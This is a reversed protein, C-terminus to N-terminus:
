VSAAIRQLQAQFETTGLLSMLTHATQVANSAATRDELATYATARIIERNTYQAPTLLKDSTRELDALAERPRGIRNNVMARSLLTPPDEARNERNWLPVAVCRACFRLAEEDFGLAAFGFAVTMFLWARHESNTFLEEQELLRDVTARTTGIHGSHILPGAELIIETQIPVPLGNQTLSTDEGATKLINLYRKAEIRRGRWALFCAHKAYVQLLLDLSGPDRQVLHWLDAELKFFALDARSWTGFLANRVLVQLRWDAEERTVQGPAVPMILPGRALIEIEQPTAQLLGSLARLHDPNPSEASAEWRAVSSQQIHLFAAIEWQTHGSRMRLARLLDGTRPLSVWPHAEDVEDVTAANPSAAIRKLARIANISRFAAIRQVEPIELADLVAELERVRPQVLGAEWRSLSAASVGSRLSLQGM